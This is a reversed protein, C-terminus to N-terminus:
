PAAATGSARANISNMRQRLRQLDSIDSSDVKTSMQPAADVDVNGEIQALRERFSAVSYKAEAAPSPQTATTMATAPATSAGSRLRSAEVKQLGRKIYMQFAESTRELQPTLDEDPHDLTFQYLEELGQSTTTKEGIKKFIAVLKSKVSTGPSPQLNMRLKAGTPPAVSRPAMLNVEIFSYIMPAPLQTRPPISSCYNYIGSGVHKTVEHLLTKVARLGQDDAAARENIANVGLTSLYGHIGALVTPIHVNEISLQLSRTLKILCKVLLDDFRAPVNIPRDYLLTLFAVFTYSRTCNEMMAIMLMNAAKILSEGDALTMVREDLLILILQKVFARQTPETVATAFVREQHIQMLANLVYRCGRTGKSPNAIATIFIHEIRKVLSSVLADIDGVMSAHLAVNDKANMIEHCVGKMAEVAVNEDMDSVGTLVSKWTMSTAQASVDPFLNRVTPTSAGIKVDEPAPTVVHTSADVDMPEPRPTFPTRSPLASLSQSVISKKPNVVEESISAAGMMNTLTSTALVGTDVSKSVAAGDLASAIPIPDFKLWDGPSGENNLSMERAVRAFKDTVVDKVLETPMHGIRKWVSEGAVKYASALCNLAGNRLSIDRTDVLKIVEQLTKDERLCVLLGHREILRSIEELCESRTRSSKTEVIGTTLYGVFKSALYVTPVARSISRFKERIAEINHGSREVIVPLLIAAEQEALKYDLDSAAHLADLVVDLVKNLVQTNPSAESIRLMLWRILLDFNNILESEDSKIAEHIADLAALHAKIDDAFMMKQIDARFHGQSASKLERYALMLDEDRLTEFKVAKRPYKRIRVAKDTDVLFVPGTPVAVANETSKTSGGLTAAKRAANRQAATSATKMANAAMVATGVTRFSTSAKGKNLHAEIASKLDTKLSSALSLIKASDINTTVAQMLAASAKRSETSKDSLGVAAFHLVGTCISDDAGNEEKSYLEACWDLAEKKGEANIKATLEQFKEALCAIVKGFGMAEAWRTCAKIAAERVNKKSDGFYKVIDLLTARGVKEIPPGMACAMEGALNLATVALMRNSDAFRASLGKPLDGVTPAICNNAGKLITGLEELAEARMKWNSDAMKGLFSDTIKPGIDARPADPVTASSAVVALPEASTSATVSRVRVTRSPKIGGEFPNRAFEAELSKLQSEKLGDLSDKIAPGIGAHLAGILKAGSGKVVPNPTELAQRAWSILPKADLCETGFALVAAGTWNLAEAVVKPNKHAGAKEEIRAIVARPGLAEAITMLSDSAPVRLKFDALKEGLVDLASAAHRFEFGECASLTAITKFMAGVVQFNSDSWGPFSALGIVMTDLAETSNNGLSAAKEQVSNMAELREKWNASKLGNVTDEGLLANVRAAAGDDSAEIAQSPASPAAIPKAQIPAEVPKSVVETKAAPRASSFSTSARLDVSSRVSSAESAPKSNGLTSSAPTSEVNMMMEEIKARKGADLDMLMFEITKIGGSAKACSAIAAFAANRADGNSASTCKVIPPLIAKHLATLEARSIQEFSSALWKLTEIQVKPVKHKLAVCVDDVVDVLEFCYKIYEALAGQLAEIVAATKDKLKDLMGPLLARAERTWDKRAGRALAAAARAAEAICAVNSDKTIVQKLAKSVNGYDASALKPASALRTLTQLAYQREQWKKSVVGDWFKPNEGEGPRDLLPLISVPEAYDYADPVAAAQTSAGAANTTMTTSEDSPGAGSTSAGVDAADAAAQERRLFRSPRAGSEVSAIAKNVDAQMSDRMKDILDRKVADSGLWRTMEVTIEKAAARVKADKADFLPVLGKLMAGAPVVKPTGFTKVAMLLANTAALALKPIRNLTAKLLAELVVEVQELEILLMCCETAREVAKPRGGLGKTTLNALMGVAHKEAYGEDAITLFARVSELAADM